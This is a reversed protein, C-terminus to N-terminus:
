ENKNCKVYMVDSFEAPAQGQEEQIVVCSTVLWITQGRKLGMPELNYNEM